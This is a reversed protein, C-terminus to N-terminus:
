KKEGTAIEGPAEATLRVWRRRKPGSTTEKMGRAEEGTGEAWQFHNRGPELPYIKAVGKSVLRSLVQHITAMPNQQTLQVGRKLLEDRVEPASYLRSPDSKLVARVADTIGAEPGYWLAPQNVLPAFGKIGRELMSIESEIATKQQYLTELRDQAAKLWTEYDFTMVLYM